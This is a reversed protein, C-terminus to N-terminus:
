PKMNSPKSNSTIWKRLRNVEDESMIDAWPGKVSQLLARSRAFLAPNDGFLAAFNEGAVKPLAAATKLDQLSQEIHDLEAHALGRALYATGRERNLAIALTLDEIAEKFANKRLCAIGRYYFARENVADLELVRTFDKIAWDLENIIFYAAGRNLYVTVPNPSNQTGGGQRPLSKGANGTALLENGEIIIEESYAM